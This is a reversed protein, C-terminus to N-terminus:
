LIKKVAIGLKEALTPKPLCPAFIYRVCSSFVLCHPYVESHTTDTIKRVIGLLFIMDVKSNM